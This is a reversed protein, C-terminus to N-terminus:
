AVGKGGAAIAGKTFIYGTLYIGFITVAAGIAVNLLSGMKFGKGTNTTETGM